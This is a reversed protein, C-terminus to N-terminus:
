RRRRSRAAPLSVLWLLAFAVATTASAAVSEGLSLGLRPGAIGIVLAAFLGWGLLAHVGAPRSPRRTGDPTSSAHRGM